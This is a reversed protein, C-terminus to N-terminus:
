GGVVKGLKQFGYAAEFVNGNYGLTKLKAALKSQLATNKTLKAGVPTTNFNVATSTSTPTTNTSTATPTSGSKHPSSGTHKPSAPGKNSKPGANPPTTPHAQAGHTSPGHNGSNGRQGALAPVTMLGLLTAIGIPLSLSRMTIGGLAGPLAFWM